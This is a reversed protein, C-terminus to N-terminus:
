EALNAKLRDIVNVETTDYGRLNSLYLTLWDGLHILYIARELFSEGKSWIEYIHPTCTKYVEKNLDMRM